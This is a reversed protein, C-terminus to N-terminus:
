QGIPACVLTYVTGKVGYRSDDGPHVWQARVQAQKLVVESKFGATEKMDTDSDRENGSMHITLQSKVTVEVARALEMIAAAKSNARADEAYYTPGSVGVGCIEKQSGPVASIWAPHLEAPHPGACGLGGVLLGSGFLVVSVRCITM